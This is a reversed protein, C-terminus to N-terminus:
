MLQEPSKVYITAGHEALFEQDRFGWLVSICPMGSNRATMVDVDSDGIYVAKERSVGLVKLAANVTDPAPKKNIGESEGIAVDVLDGFFHRCIEQTAACFKNSVVAINKDREKLERLMEMIGPYPRTQDFNHLMYHNRFDQFVKEFAVKGQEPVNEKIGMARQMLLKVGNGVMMRVEEVSREPLGNKRLAYNCSAALDELSSILTGDLDFIYTDFDFQAHAPLPKIRFEGGHLVCVENTYVRLANYIAKDRAAYADSEGMAGLTAKGYVDELTRNAGYEWRKFSLNEADVVVYKYEIPVDIAQVNVSLVWNDAETKKMLLFHDTNWNGLAPHNGLLALMEGKRLRPASVKFIVTQEFLPLRENEDFAEKAVAEKILKEEDFTEKSFDTKVFVKKAVNGSLKQGEAKLSMGTKDELWFDHFVYNKSSDYVYTRPAGLYELRLVKGAADVVKYYYFIHDYRHQRRHSAQQPRSEHAERYEHTYTEATWVYGDQTNMVLQVNEAPVSRDESLFSLDVCLSEGWNAKYPITFEMKM